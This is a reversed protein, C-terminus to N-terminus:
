QFFIPTLYVEMLGAIILILVAAFLLIIANEIVHLFRKSRVGNRILGTGLIGGALAALFYTTIEPLGHIMYRLLGLPIESLNFNTFVGVASAIVTANWALIFIAGEGFILSFLLTFIM